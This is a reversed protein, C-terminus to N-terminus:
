VMQIVTAFRGPKVVGATEEQSCFFEDSHDKTCYSPWFINQPPIGIKVLENVSFGNLDFRFKDKEMVLFNQWEPLVEQLAPRPKVYCCKEISPGIGILINEPKCGFQTLMRAAVIVPLKGVAGKWGVHALAVIRKVADYFIFPACDGTLLWLVAGIKDTILADTNKICKPKTLPLAEGKGVIAVATGHLLDVQVVQQNDFGVAAVFRERNSDVEGREGYKYSMNGFAKPSFGHILGPLILEKLQYFGEKHKILM